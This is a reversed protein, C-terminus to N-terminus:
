VEWPWMLAMNQGRFFLGIATLTVFAAFLLSFLAMNSESATAGHARLALRFIFLGLLTALLPILGTSISNPLFSLLSPLDLWYEDIVVMLTTWVTGVLLGLGALRRGRASRFWIGTVNPDRDPDFDLYPLLVLALLTLAPIVFSAYVPHFHLLLEQFGVFYWAAKAPNPPHHPDASELLPANVTGSWLLLLALVILGGTVELVVLHPVTTVYKLQRKTPPDEDVARPISITDKRVRWIHFAVIVFISFPLVSIHFAFFNRLTSAGVEPGGLVARRIAPGALPIYDLMSTVITVAWYSLQDWPLLYGSFNAGAVLLLLALGLVWNFERPHHFAATYFVRLMHLVVLILLLNASWHHLNRVFQGLWIETQLTEISKHAQDPTPTYAFLLLAGTIALVGLLLISLGGLGFTYTVKLARLPVTTPHLHLLLDNLVLKM